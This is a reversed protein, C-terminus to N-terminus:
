FYLIYQAILLQALYEGWNLWHKAEMGNDLCLAVARTRVRPLSAFFSHYIQKILRLIEQETFNM